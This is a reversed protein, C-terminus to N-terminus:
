GSRSIRDSGESPPSNQETRSAADGVGRLMQLAHDELTVPIRKIVEVWEILRPPLDTGGFLPLGSAESIKLLTRATPMHKTEGKMFRTITSPSVRARRALNTYDVRTAEAAREIFAKIHDRDSSMPIHM